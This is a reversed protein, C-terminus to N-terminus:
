SAQWVVSTWTWTGQKKSILSSCTDLIVFSFLEFKLLMRWWSSYRRVIGRMNSWQCSITSNALSPYLCPTLKKGLVFSRIRKCPYISVKSNQRSKAGNSTKPIPNLIIPSTMRPTLWNTIREALLRDAHRRNSPLIHFLLCAQVSLAQVNRWPRDELDPQHGFLSFILWLEQKSWEKHLTM